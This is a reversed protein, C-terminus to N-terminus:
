SGIELLDRFDAANRLSPAGSFPTAHLDTCVDRLVEGARDLLGLILTIHATLTPEFGHLTNAAARERLWQRAAQVETPSTM